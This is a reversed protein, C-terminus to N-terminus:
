APLTGSRGCAYVSSLRLVRLRPNISHSIPFSFLLQKITPTSKESYLSPYCIRSKVTDCIHHNHIFQYAIKTLRLMDLLRNSKDVIASKLCNVYHEIYMTVDHM